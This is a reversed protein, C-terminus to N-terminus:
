KFKRYDQLENISRMDAIRSAKKQEKTIKANILISPINCLIITSVYKMFNNLAENENKPNKMLFPVGLILGIFGSLIGIPQSISLGLAEVSEAYKQSNEDIKNFTRFTNKQLRKANKIQNEDLNLKEIAQYLKKEEKQGTKKYKDYEKKDKWANRLFNIMSQKKEKKPEVGNIDQINEDDVYVLTEPNKMLDQKVKFRGIRSAEKSIQATFISTAFTILYGLGSITASIKGANRMGLKTLIKNLTLSALASMSFLTSSLTMAALEANEAYDQSAIDIKEVLKTLLQQDKKAAEIEDPTMKDNIHLEDQKLEEEFIKRQVKYESGGTTLEKIKKFIGPSSFKFKKDNSLQENNAIENAQKIQEDTLIAFSNPNDLEKRMAEFRGRRSAGVETKAAWSFLPFSALTAFLATVFTPLGMMTIEKAHKQSIKNALKEVANKIPKITLLGAGIGFGIMAIIEFVTSVATETAVEMDEARKQSYEDMIDIARLLAQGKKIDNQDIYTPNDQLFKERKAEALNRENKWDAYAPEYKKYLKYDGFTSM